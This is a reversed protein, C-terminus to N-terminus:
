GFISIFVIYTVMIQVFHILQDQWLNITKANAKEHDICAHLIAMLIVWGYMFLAGESLDLFLLIPLMIMISWSISHILLGAVYDNKYKEGASEWYEKQKLKYLCASQLVFDDIIHMLIMVLLLFEIM